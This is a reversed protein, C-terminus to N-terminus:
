DFEHDYEVYIDYNIRIGEGQITMCGEIEPNKFGNDICDLIVKGVNTLAHKLSEKQLETLEMTTEKMYIKNKINETRRM